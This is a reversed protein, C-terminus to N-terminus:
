SNIANRLKGVLIDKYLKDFEKMEIAVGLERLSTVGYERIGCPIIGNFHELEPNINIAVGHYCIWKRIKVGISAIKKVSNEVDIWVGPYGKLARARVGLVSLADVISQELLRIYAALDPEKPLFIKRLDLVLYVIRQGPGHYTVQGGRSTTYVPFRTTDVIDERKASAGMTYISPHELFWLMSADKGNIVSDVKEEMYAIAEAYEVLDRSFYCDLFYDHSIMERLLIKTM